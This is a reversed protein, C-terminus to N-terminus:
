TQRRVDLQRTTSSLELELWGHARDVAYMLGVVVLVLEFQEDELQSATACYMQVTTPQKKSCSSMSM